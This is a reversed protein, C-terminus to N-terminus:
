VLKKIILFYYAVGFLIFIYSVALMIVLQIIPNKLKPKNMKNESPTPIWDIELKPKVHKM